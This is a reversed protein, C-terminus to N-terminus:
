TIGNEGELIDGQTDWCDLEDIMSRTVGDKSEMQYGQIDWSHFEDIISQRVSREGDMQDGQIYSSHHENLSVELLVVKVNWKIEKSIELIFNVLSVELLM